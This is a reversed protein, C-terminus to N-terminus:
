EVEEVQLGAYGLWAAAFALITVFISLYLSAPMTAWADKGHVLANIFGLVWMLVLLVIHLLPRGSRVRRRFFVVLSWVLAFAGLFLAGAILWSAFNTWQIHYSSSYAWDSLWAGLFLPFPAGLFIAHLPHLPELWRRSTTVV